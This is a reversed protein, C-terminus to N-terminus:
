TVNSSLDVNKKGRFKMFGAPVCASANSYGLQLQEIKYAPKAEEKVEAM